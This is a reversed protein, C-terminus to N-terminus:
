IQQVMVRGLEKTTGDIRLKIPMWTINQQICFKIIPYKNLETVSTWNAVDERIGVYIPERPKGSNKNFEKCTFTVTEGITPKRGAKKRYVVRAEFDDDKWKDDDHQRFTRIFSFGLANCGSDESGYKLV